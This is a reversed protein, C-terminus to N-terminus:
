PHAATDMMFAFEDEVRELLRENEDEELSDGGGEVMGAYMPPDEDDPINIPEPNEGAIGLGAYRGGSGGGGNYRAGTGTTKGKIRDLTQKRRAAVRANPSLHLDRPGNYTAPYQGAKGGGYVFCNETSHGQPFVCYANECILNPNFTSSSARNSNPAGRQNPYPKFRRDDRHLQRSGSANSAMENASYVGPVAQNHGVSKGKNTAMITNLSAVYPAIGLEVEEDKLRRIVS